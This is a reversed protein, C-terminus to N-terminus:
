ARCSSCLSAAPPGDIPNIGKGNIRCCQARWRARQSFGQQALWRVDGFFANLKSQLRIAITPKRGKPLLRVSPGDHTLIENGRKARAAVKRRRLGHRLASSRVLRGVPRSAITVGTLRFSLLRMKERKMFADATNCILSVHNDNSNIACYKSLKANDAPPIDKGASLADSALEPACVHEGLRGLPM